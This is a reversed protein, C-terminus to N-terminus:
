CLLLDVLYALTYPQVETHSLVQKMTQLLKVSIPSCEGQNHVSATSYGLVGLYRTM